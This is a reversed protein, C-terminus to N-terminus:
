MTPCSFGKFVFYCLHEQSTIKLIENSPLTHTIHYKEESHHTMQLHVCVGQDLVLPFHIVVSSLGPWVSTSLPEHFGAFVLPIHLIIYWSLIKFMYDDDDVDKVCWSTNPCCCIEEM